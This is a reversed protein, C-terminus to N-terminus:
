RYEIVCKEKVQINQEGISGRTALYLPNCPYVTSCPAEFCHNPYVAPESNGRFKYCNDYRPRYGAEREAVIPVTSNYVGKFWRQYPFNDYDTIVEAVQNKTSYYPNTNKKLQIQSQIYHTNNINIYQTM